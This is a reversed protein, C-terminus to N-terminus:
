ELVCDPDDLRCDGLVFAEVRDSGNGNGNGNGPCGMLLLVFTVVLVQGFVQLIKKM